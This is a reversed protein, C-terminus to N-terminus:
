KGGVTNFWTIKGLPPNEGEKPLFVSNYPLKISDIGSKPTLKEMATYLYNSLGSISYTKIYYPHITNGSNFLSKTILRLLEDIQPTLPHKALAAVDLLRHILTGGFPGAKM